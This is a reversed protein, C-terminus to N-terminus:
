QKVCYLVAVNKPRTETWWINSTYAHYSASTGNQLNINGTPATTAVWYSASNNVGAWGWIHKHTELDDAQLNWLARVSDNVWTSDIWRLFRWRAPLYETWTDPCTTLNFAMIAWTPTSTISNVRGDLNNFNALLQNWSTASLWSGAWVELTTPNTWVSGITAYVVFVTLSTLSFVLGWILSKKITDKVGLVSTKSRM